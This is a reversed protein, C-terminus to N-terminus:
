RMELTISTFNWLSRGYTEQGFVLRGRGTHFDKGLVGRAKCDQGFHLVIGAYM